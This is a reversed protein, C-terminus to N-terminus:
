IWFGSMGSARRSPACPPTAPRPRAPSSALMVTLDGEYWGPCRLCTEEDGSALFMQGSSLMTIRFAEEIPMQDAANRILSM